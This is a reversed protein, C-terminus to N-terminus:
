ANLWIFGLYIAAVVAFLIAATRRNARKIRDDIPTRM